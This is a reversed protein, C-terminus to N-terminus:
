LQMSTIKGVSHEESTYCIIGSASSIDVDTCVVNANACRVSLCNVCLCSVDVYFSEWIGFLFKFFLKIWFPLVFNFVL